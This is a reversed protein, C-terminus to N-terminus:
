CYTSKKCDSHNFCVTDSDWTRNDCINPKNKADCHTYYVIERWDDFEISVAKAFYDGPEVGISYNRQGRESVTCTEAMTASDVTCVRYAPIFESLYSLSGKTTGTTSIESEQDENLNEEETLDESDL